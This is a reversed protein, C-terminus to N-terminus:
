NTTRQISISYVDKRHGIAIIRVQERVIRYIVRWDGVRLKRYGRLSGHLYFGYKIPNTMLRRTIASEIRSKIGTDFNPLDETKVKPHYVIEM